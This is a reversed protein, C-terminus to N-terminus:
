RPGVAAALAPQWPSARAAMQLLRVDVAASSTRYGITRAEQSGLTRVYYYRSLYQLGELRHYLVRYEASAAHKYFGAIGRGDRLPRLRAGQRTAPNCVFCAERFGLILLGDCSAHVMLADHINDDDFPRPEREVFRAVMRRENTSLDVAELCNNQPAVFPFVTLLPQAPQRSHHDLIFAHDTALGRWAKCIIRCRLLIERILEEPLCGSSGRQAKNTAM